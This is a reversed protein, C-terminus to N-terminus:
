LFTLYGLEELRLFASKNLRSGNEFPQVRNEQSLVTVFLTMHRRLLPVSNANILDFAVMAFGIDVIIQGAFSLRRGQFTPLVPPKLLIPRNRTAKRKSM